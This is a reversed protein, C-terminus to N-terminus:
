IVPLFRSDDLKWLWLQRVVMWKRKSDRQVSQKKTENSKITGAREDEADTASTMLHPYSPVPNDADKKSRSYSQALAEARKESWRYVVQQQKTRLASKSEISHSATQDLTQTAQVGQVGTFPPYTRELRQSMLDTM